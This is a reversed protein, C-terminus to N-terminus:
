FATQRTWKINQKIVKNDSTIISDVEKYAKTLKSGSAVVCGDPIVAGKLIVNRCGLWVHNGFKVEKNPNDWEGGGTYFKHSDTDMVINDFSWM